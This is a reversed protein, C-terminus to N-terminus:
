EVRQKKLPRGGEEERQRKEIQRITPLVKSMRSSWSNWPATFRRALAEAISRRTVCRKHPRHANWAARQADLFRLMANIGTCHRTKERLSMGSSHRSQILDFNEDPHQRCWAAVLGAFDPGKTPLPAPVIPHVAAAEPLPPPSPTDVAWEDPFLIEGAFDWDTEVDLPSFPDRFSHQEDEDYM